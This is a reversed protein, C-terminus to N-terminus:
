AGLESAADSSVESLWESAWEQPSINIGDAAGLAGLGGLGLGLGLAMGGSAGAGAGDVPLFWQSSADLAGPGGPGGPGGRGLLFLPTSPAAAVPPGGGAGAGLSLLSRPRSSAARRIIPENMQLPSTPSGAAGGLVKDPTRASSARRAARRSDAAASFPEPAQPTVPPSSRMSGGSASGDGVDLDSEDMMEDTADDSGGSEGDGDDADSAM